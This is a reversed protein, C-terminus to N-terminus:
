GVVVKFCDTGLFWQNNHFTMTTSHLNTTLYPFPFTLAVVLLHFSACLRPTVHGSFGLEVDREVVLIGGGGDGFILRASKVVVAVEVCETLKLYRGGRMLYSIFGGLLALLCIWPRGGRWIRRRGSQWRRRPLGRTCSGGACARVYLVLVCLM